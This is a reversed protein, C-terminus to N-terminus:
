FINSDFVMCITDESYGKKRLINKIEYDEMYKSKKNVIKRACNQEYEEIQYKNNQIYEDIQNSKIGKCILKYKIEKISLTKLAMYEDIARGFIHKIM